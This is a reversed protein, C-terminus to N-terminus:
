KQSAIDEITPPKWRTERVVDELLKTNGGIDEVEDKRVREELKDTDIIIISNEFCNKIM